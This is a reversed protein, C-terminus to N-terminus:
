FHLAIDWSNTIAPISFTLLNDGELFEFAKDEGNVVCRSPRRNSYAGFRGCGMGSIKVGSTSPSSFSEVAKVAGGSNYMDILGIPAFEVGTNFCFTACDGAWSEGCIEDFYEIDKPSIHGSLNVNSNNQIADSCPWTGTGQCNFIGLVGSCENLNWIKLLNLGFEMRISSVFDKLNSAAENPLENEKKRFKSNEKISLLRGGFQSGEILPEDEKQFENGVDQWGDDIILFRAPTCGDSLLLEEASNGQLSSRFESDLVPLFLVYFPEGESGGSDDGGRLELLLMQTEAPVNKGSNGMRPVMWWIKFRFLCLVRADRLVGLKFVHRSSAEDSIAGLFVSPTKLPTLVVNDPVDTLVDQGNIRFSREELVVTAKSSLCCRPRSWRIKKNHLTSLRLPCGNSSCFRVREHTPHLILSNYHRTNFIQHLVPAGMSSYNIINM